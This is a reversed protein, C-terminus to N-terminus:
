VDRHIFLSNFPFICWKSSQWFYLARKGYIDLPKSDTHRPYINPFKWLKEAFLCSAVFRYAASLFNKVEVVM